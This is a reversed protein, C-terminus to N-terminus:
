LPLYPVILGITPESRQAVINRVQVLQIVRSKQMVPAKYIQAGYQESVNLLYEAIWPRLSNAM